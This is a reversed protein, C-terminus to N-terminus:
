AVLTAIVCLKVIYGKQPQHITKQPFNAISVIKYLYVKKLMLVRAQHAGVMHM